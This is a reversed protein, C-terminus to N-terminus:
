TFHVSEADFEKCKFWDKLWLCTAKHGYRSGEVQVPRLCLVTCRLTSTWCCGLSSPALHHTSLWSSSTMYCLPSSCTQFWVQQCPNQIRPSQQWSQRCTWVPRTQKSAHHSRHRTRVSSHLELVKCNCKWTLEARCKELTALDLVLKTHPLPPFTVAAPHCTVRHSGM